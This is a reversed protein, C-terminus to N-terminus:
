HVPIITYQTPNQSKRKNYMALVYSKSDGFYMDSSSRKILTLLQYIKMIETSRPERLISSHLKILWNHTHCPSPCHTRRMLFDYKTYVSTDVDLAGGINLNTNFKHWWSWSTTHWPRVVQTLFWYPFTKIVDWRRPNLQSIMYQVSHNRSL